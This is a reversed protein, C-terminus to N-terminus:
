KFLFMGFLYALCVGCIGIVPIPYKVMCFGVGLNLSIFLLGVGLRKLHIM